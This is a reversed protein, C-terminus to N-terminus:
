YAEFTYRGFLKGLHCVAHKAQRAVDGNTLNAPTDRTEALDMLAPVDPDCTSIWSRMKFKWEHWEALTGRFIKPKEIYKVLEPGRDAMTDACGISRQWSLM